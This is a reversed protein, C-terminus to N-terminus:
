FANQTSSKALFHWSKWVHVQLTHLLVGDCVVGMALLRSNM